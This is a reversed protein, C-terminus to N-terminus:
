RQLQYAAPSLVGWLISNSLGFVVHDALCITSGHGNAAHIGLGFMVINTKEVPHLSEGCWRWWRQSGM